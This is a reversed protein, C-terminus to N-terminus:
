FIALGSKISWKIPSVDDGLCCHMRIRKNLYNQITLFIIYVSIQVAQLHRVFNPGRNPVRIEQNPSGLHSGSKPVEIQLGRNPPIQPILNRNPFGCKPFVGIKPGRNPSRSTPVEIQLGRNPPYKPSGFDLNRNPFGCKPVVWIKPGWNPVGIKSGSKPVGIPPGYNTLKPMKKGDLEALHIDKEHWASTNLKHGPYSSMRIRKNLLNQLTVFFNYLSINLCGSTDLFNPVGIQSGSKRIKKGDLEALHGKRALCEYQAQPWPLEVDSIYFYDGDAQVYEDPIALNSLNDDSECSNKL